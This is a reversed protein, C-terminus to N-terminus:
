RRSSATTKTGRVRSRAAPDEQDDVSPAGGRGGRGGTPAPGLRTCQYDSLQCRWNFSAASFQIAREDDSFSLDVFPLTVATFQTNAAANLATALKAHDFAM